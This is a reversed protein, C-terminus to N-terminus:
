QLKVRLLKAIFLIITTDDTKWMADSCRRKIKVFDLDLEKELETLEPIILSDNQGLASLTGTM